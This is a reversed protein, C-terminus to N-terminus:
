CRQLMQGTTDSDNDQVANVARADGLGYERSLSRPVMLNRDPRNATWCKHTKRSDCESRANERQAPKVTM